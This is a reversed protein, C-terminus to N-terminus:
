ELPRFRLSCNHVALRGGGRVFRLSCYSQKLRHLLDPHLSQGNVPRLCPSTCLNRVTCVVPSCSGMLPLNSQLLLFMNYMIVQLFSLLCYAPSVAIRCLISKNTVPISNYLFTIPSCVRSTCFSTKVGGVVVGVWDIHSFGGGVGVM